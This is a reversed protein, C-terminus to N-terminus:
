DKLHCRLSKNSLRLTAPCPDQSCLDVVQVVISKVKCPRMPGSICRVRYKRGCSAGNDWLGDSVAAFFREPPFQDENSGGGHMYPPDYSAATGFRGLCRGLWIRHLQDCVLFTALM